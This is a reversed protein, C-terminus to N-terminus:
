TRSLTAPHKQLKLLVFHIVINSQIHRQPRDGDAHNIGIALVHELASHRTLNLIDLRAQAIHRSTLTLNSKFGTRHALVQIVSKPCSTKINDAHFRALHIGRQRRHSVILHILLHDLSDHAWRFVLCIRAPDRLHQPRPPKIWDVDLASLGMDNASQQATALDDLRLHMSRALSTRPRKRTKPGRRGGRM